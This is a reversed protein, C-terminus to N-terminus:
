KYKAIRYDQVEDARPTWDLKNSVAYWDVQMYIFLWPADEHVIMQLRDTIQKRAADDTTEGLQKVLKEWEPNTWNVYNTSAELSNLDSLDYWASLFDSGTGLLFLAPLEKKGIMGRYVTWEYPVVECDVGVKSLDQAVALAIEKDKQYRGNPTSMTCKFGNPYGAEALLKKAGEPDYPYPKIDASKAPPNVMGGERKGKGMFLGDLITQVDVAMNLAQRVRVDKVENCGPGTCKQEFGIYIRRGGTVTNMKAVDSKDITAAQDPPVQSIVDVNGALLEAVATSAEPIVRFTITKIAPKTGWYGDWRELTIHDDKVWEVLKYPGGGVPEAAVKELTNNKYYDVPHIFVESIYGPTDPEFRDLKLNVTYEDVVDVGTLGISTFVYGPTNGDWKYQPDLGREFDYKITEANFPSGDQFTVGQRLKFQWTKKDDLIKWSEALMPQLKQHEDMHILSDFIHEAINSDTRTSIQNPEFNTVDNPTAVVLTRTNNLDEAPAPAAEPAKTPEPAAPAKTPEPAAPAAAAPAAPAAPAATPAPAPQCAALGMSMVIVVVFLTNFLKNKFMKGGPNLCKLKM